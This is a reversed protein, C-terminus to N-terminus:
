HDIDYWDASDLRGVVIQEQCCFHIGDPLFFPAGDNKPPALQPNRPVPHLPTKVRWSMASLQYSSPFLRLARPM